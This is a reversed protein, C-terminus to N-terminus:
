SNRNDETEVEEDLTEENIALLNAGKKKQKKDMM